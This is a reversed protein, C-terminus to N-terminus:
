PDECLLVFFFEIKRVTYFGINRCYRFLRLSTYSMLLRSKLYYITIQLYYIDCTNRYKLDYIQLDYIM